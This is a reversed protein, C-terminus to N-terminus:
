KLFVMKKTITFEKSEIRYLYVGSALSVPNWTYKHTGAKLEESVLTTVEEGLITYIKLTVNTPKPLDFVITTVPNFPNPYNQKLDYSVPLTQDQNPTSVSTVIDSETCYIYAAGANLGNIHDKDPASVITYPGSIVVSHGYRDYQGGDSLITQKSFSWGTSGFTYSYICGISTSMNSYLIDGVLAINKQIAVGNYGAAFGPTGTPSVLKQEEIWQNGNNRFIYAAKEDSAGVIMLSDSLDVCQGFQDQTQGDSATIRVQEGWNWDRKYIYTCGTNQNEKPSGIVALPGDISVSSGFGGGSIDKHFYVTPTMDVWGGSPKEYFIINSSQRMGAVVYEGSIDIVNGFTASGIGAPPSLKASETLDQWGEVPKQFIYIKPNVGYNAGVIAVDGSIAVSYGFYYDDAGSNSKHLKGKQIWSCCGDREFIYAVGANTGFEADYPAGVIAFEGDVDVSWGFNDHDNIDPPTIDVENINPGAQQHIFVERPSHLAGPARVIIRGERECYLNEDVSVTVTGSNSGSSDGVFQLWPDLSYANWDLGAGGPPGNNTIQIAVTTQASTIDFSSPTVSLLPLNNANVISKFIYASGSNYGNDDDWVSSIIATTGYLHVSTGFLDLDDGDEAFLKNQRLWNDSSGEKKFVYAAGSWTDVESDQKAGILIYEGFISVSYGFNQLNEADLAWLKATQEWNSGISNLFVYASGAHPIGNVGEDAKAGVVAYQGDIVVSCGFQDAEDVDDGIIKKDLTWGNSYHYVYASGSITGNDNDTPNGVILYDGNLDISYGFWDNIEGDAPIIKDTQIWNGSQYTFIYVAGIGGYTYAGIAARDNYIAVSNGFKDGTSGDNPVIKTELNWTNGSLRYIYASGDPDDFRAGVIALDGFMDVAGGFNDGDAGDPALLKASETWQNNIPEYVYVAGADTGNEDADPAGVMAFDGNTEVADGFHDEDQGDSALIKTSPSISLSNTSYLGRGFTAALVLNDSERTKLMSTRVIAMGNNAPVWVPSTVTIDETAWVGLETALLVQHYDLPNYLAWRIPFDNLNGEKNAWTTGGDLTEWVSIVGYNSFTVLIQNENGGVEICSIYSSPFDPWTIPYVHYSNATHAQTIKYLKGTDTGVYITGITYPSVKIQAVCETFTNGYSQTTSSRQSKDSVHYIILIESDNYSAFLVDINEDYDWPSILYCKQLNDYIPDNFNNGGDTSLFFRSGWTSAIQYYPNNKFIYCYGGDSGLATNTVNMGSYLFQQTGNDQAGALFYNEGGYPHLACTHFQTVRYGGSNCDKFIIPQTALCDDIMYVGGDNGFVLTQPDEPRFIMAHHDDHNGEIKEWTSGGDTSRHLSVGGVFLTNPDTPHVAAVLDYDTQTASFFITDGDNEVGGCQGDDCITLIPITLPVWSEGKNTTKYIGKIDSDIVTPRNITSDNEVLAYIVSSDSPAVALEIRNIGDAATPFGNNGNNLRTWTGEDGSPSIYVGDSSGYFGMAALIFNDATIELDAARNSFSTDLTTRNLVANWSFGGNTSRVVGRDRTAAYVDGNTNVVIKQVFKFEDGSTSMLRNWTAGGDISKWIGLGQIEAWVEGTGVYFVQTNSPDYAISSISLNSWLDAVNHWANSPSGINNNYWLGGSVGGAWFKQHNPDNPDWMIARTRGGVNNPGREEWIIENPDVLEMGRIRQYEEYALYFPVEGTRPDRTMMYEQEALQDTGTADNYGLDEGFKNYPDSMLDKQMYITVSTKFFVFSFVTSLFLIITLSIYRKKM